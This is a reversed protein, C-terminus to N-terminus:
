PNEALPMEALLPAVKDVSEFGANHPNQKKIEAFKRNRNRRIYTIILHFIIPYERRKYQTLILAVCGFFLSIFNHIISPFPQFFWQLIINAIFGVFTIKALQELLRM